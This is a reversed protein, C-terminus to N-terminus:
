HGDDPIVAYIGEVDATLPPLGKGAWWYGGSMAVRIFVRPTRQRGWRVAESPTSWGPGQELFTPKGDPVLDWYGFWAGEEDVSIWVTGKGVLKGLDESPVGRTPSV